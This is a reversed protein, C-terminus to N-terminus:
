PQAELPRDVEAEPVRRPIRVLRGGALTQSPDLGALRAIREVDWTSGGSREVLAALMEGEESVEVHLLVPEFRKSDVPGARGLSLAVDIFDVQLREYQDAPCVGSLQYVQGGLVLWSVDLAADEGSGRARAARKGGIERPRPLLGFRAGSGQAFARAPVVPDEGESVLQFVIRAEDDPAVAQAFDAANVITWGAPFTLAFDLGLHVLSRDEVIGGRPDPGVALGALALPFAPAVPAEARTASALIAEIVPAAEAKEEATYLVTELSTRLNGVSSL